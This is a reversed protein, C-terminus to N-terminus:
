GVPVYPKRKARVVGEVQGCEQNLVHRYVFLRAKFAQHQTSASGKRHVALCTLFERVDASSLGAPDKSRTFAQCHRVWQRSANLPNPSYHRLRIDNALRTDVAIWSVGTATNV